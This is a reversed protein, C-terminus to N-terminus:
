LKKPLQFKMGIKSASKINLPSYFFGLKRDNGRVENYPTFLGKFRINISFRTQNTRNIVNGHWINPSFILFEGKKINLWKIKKKQKKFVDNLNNKQLNKLTHLSEKLPLIFMSKTKFVDVLPMWFVIQFPSEGSLTDSHINLLSLDDKPAHVSLNLNKQIALENGVILEIYKKGINFIQEKFFNNKNIESIIKLRVANINKKKVFKHFNNFFFYKNKIKSIEKKKYKLKKLLIKYLGDAIKEFADENEVKRIVYGKSVFEKTISKEKLNQFNLFM